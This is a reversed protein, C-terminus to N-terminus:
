PLVRGTLRAVRISNLTVAETVSKMRSYKNKHKALGSPVIAFVVTRLYSLLSPSFLIILENLYHLTSDSM